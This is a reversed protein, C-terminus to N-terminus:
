VNEQYCQTSKFNRLLKAMNVVITVFLRDGMRDLFQFYARRWTVKLILSGCVGWFGVIFGIAISTYFWLHEHSNEHEEINGDKHTSGIQPGQAMNDERCRNLPLECLDLNGAYSSATFSQLQTGTPVRGSLNNNSLNLYSLFNLTALSQPIVYSLHNSSLDLFELSELDGINQPIVGTLLNRSLNLGILGLLSTVERPIEGEVRNSSLDIVKVSYLIKKYELPLGKTNVRAKEIYQWYFHMSGVSTITRYDFTRTELNQRQTMGTFNNICRPITGSISNHSIDLIQLFTLQCLQLPISGVFENSPLRLIMLQLLSTGIWTPIRGSLNNEGFDIVSLSSYNMLSVPLEGIFSNNQFHLSRLFSYKWCIKGFSEPIKGSLNNNALNLLELNAMKPWCKPLEGFLLNNSLDLYELFGESECIFTVTGRFLNNSLNLVWSNSNLQPLPCSFRNYSLDIANLAQFRTLFWEFPINGTIQNASINLHKINFSLDWFWNPITDSIRASSIDLASFNKQTQIWQPFTPGLKCSGLGIYDLHFPPIWDPSFKLSLDYNYSLDLQNLSSLNSLHTEGKLSNFSLDLVQLKSLKGLVNDLSGNLQNNSLHLERLLSLKSLNPIPGELKNSSLDLHVLPVMNGLAKPILGEIETRHLDLHLLRNYYKFLWPFISSNFQNFSLDLFSLPSSCNANILTPPVPLSLQCNSLRLDQLLSPLMNVKDPWNVVKSLNVSSMDLNRLSSLRFLWDLNYDEIIMVNWSIDLSILNSLNGLQPPITGFFYNDSLNLYQKTAANLEKGNAVDEVDMGWSSPISFNGQLGQKFKFLAQREEEICRMIVESDSLNFAFCITTASCLFLFVLLEAYNPGRM